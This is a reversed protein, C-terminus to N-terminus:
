PKPSPVGRSLQPRSWPILSSLSTRVVVIIVAVLCVSRAHHGRPCRRVVRRSPRRHSSRPVRFPIVACCFRSAQLASRAVLMRLRSPPRGFKSRMRDQVRRTRSKHAPGGRTRAGGDGRRFRMPCRTDVIRLIGVRARSEVEPGRPPHGSDFAIAPEAIRPAGSPLAGSM